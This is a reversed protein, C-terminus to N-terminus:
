TNQVEAYNKNKEKQKIKAELVCETTSKAGLFEAVGFSVVSVAVVYIVNEICSLAEVSFLIATVPMKMIGAISATIGLVIIVSYYSQDLGFYEIAIKGLVASLVAGIALVPIFMGGTIGNSNAFLTLTTRM